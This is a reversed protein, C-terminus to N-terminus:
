NMHIIIRRYGTGHMTQLQHRFSDVCTHFQLRFSHSFQLGTSHLSSHFPRIPLTPQFFGFACESSISIFSGFSSCRPFHSFPMAMPYSNFVVSYLVSCFRISHLLAASRFLFFLLHFVLFYLLYGSLALCFWIFALAADNSSERM